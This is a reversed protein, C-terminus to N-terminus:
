ALPARVVYKGTFTVARNDGNDITCALDLSARGKAAFLELAANMADADPSCRCTLDSTVAKRYQISSDAAVIASTAFGRQRLALWTAGWGALVCTSFLSGAFATGSVNLNPALPARVTLTKGDYSAVAIRM